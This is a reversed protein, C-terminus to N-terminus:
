RRWRRSSRRSASRLAKERRWTAPRAPRSGEYRLLISRPGFRGGRFFLDDSQRGLETFIGIDEEGKGAPDRAVELCEDELARLEERRQQPLQLVQGIM